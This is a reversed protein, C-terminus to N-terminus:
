PMAKRKEKRQFLIHLVSNKPNKEDSEATIPLFLENVTEHDINTKNSNSIIIFCFKFINWSRHSFNDNPLKEKIM